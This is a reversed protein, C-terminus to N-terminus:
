LFLSKIVQVGYYSGYLWQAINIHLSTYIIQYSVNKNQAKEKIVVNCEKYMSIFMGPLLLCSWALRRVKTSGRASVQICQNATDQCKPHCIGARKDVWWGWVLHSANSGVSIYMYSHVAAYATNHWDHRWNQERRKHSYMTLAYNYNKRYCNRNHFILPQCSYCCSSIHIHLWSPFFFM